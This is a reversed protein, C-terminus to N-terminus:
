NKLVKSIHYYSGKKDIMEVNFKLNDGPDVRIKKSVKKDSSLELLKSNSFDKATLNEIEKSSYGIFKRLLQHDIYEDDIDIPEITKIVLIGKVFSTGMQRLTSKDYTIHLSEITQLPIDFLPKPNKLLINNLILLQPADYKQGQPDIMNLLMEGNRRAISVSEVAERIFEEFDKLGRYDQVKIVNDFILNDNEWFFPESKRVGYFTSLAYNFENEKEILSDTLADAYYDTSSKYESMYEDHFELKFHKSMDKGYEDLISAHFSDNPIPLSVELFFEGLRSFPVITELGNNFFHIALSAETILRDDGDIRGRIQINKEPYFTIMNDTKSPAVINKWQNLSYRSYKDLTSQSTLQEFDLHILKSQNPFHYFLEYIRRFMDIPDNQISSEDDVIAVKSILNNEFNVSVKGDNVSEVEFSSQGKRPKFYFQKIALVNKTEDLLIMKQFGGKLQSKPIRINLYNKKLKVKAVFQLSQFGESVLYYFGKKSSESSLEVFLNSAEEEIE